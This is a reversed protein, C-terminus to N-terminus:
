NNDIDPVKLSQGEYIISDKLNNIKKLENVARRVETDPYYEKALDWLTDGQEVVVTKYTIQPKPKINKAYVTVILMLSTVIFVFTVVKLRITRRKKEIRRKRLLRVMEKPDRCEAILSRM